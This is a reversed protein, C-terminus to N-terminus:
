FVECWETHYFAGFCRATVSESGHLGGLFVSQSLRKIKSQLKLADSFHQINELLKNQM